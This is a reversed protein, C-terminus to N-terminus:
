KLIKQANNYFLDEVDTRSLGMLKATQRIAIINEVAVPWPQVTDKAKMQKLEDELLWYFTDAITIPKGVFECVPYDSGWM